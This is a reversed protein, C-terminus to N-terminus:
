YTLDWIKLTDERNLSKLESARKLLDLMKRIDDKSYGARKWRIKLIQTLTVKWAHWVIKPYFQKMDVMRYVYYGAVKGLQGRERKSTAGVKHYVLTKNICKGIVHNKKMRWCFNFDEEGHFFDESLVGFKEIVAPRVFLACGTIFEASIIDPMKELDNESYYKRLGWPRLVGGCNWLLSRDYYNNIRCSAFGVNKDKNLLEIMQEIFDAKVVTDNNLLSIFSYEKYIERIVKNNGCAFGANNDSLILLNGRLKKEEFALSSCIKFDHRSRVYEELIDRESSKSNNDMIYVHYTFNTESEDLSQICEITDRSGNYNLLIIALDNMFRM